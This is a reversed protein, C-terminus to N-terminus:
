KGRTVSVEADKFMVGHDLILGCLYCRRVGTCPINGNWHFGEEHHCEKERESPILAFKKKM